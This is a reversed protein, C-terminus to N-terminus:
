RATPTQRGHDGPAYHTWTGGADARHWQTTTPHYGLAQAVVPAPAQLVLQRLAATRAAQNPIGLTRIHDLLSGPHMPQGARRGPFLWRSDPNTATNMNSRQAAAALLLAAFPEPVPVPPDGLRLLVQGDDTTIDDVTLRVIRSAPQAYLLMLCAAARTSSTGTESTLVAKVLDLRHRQTLPEARAIRLRPLDRHPLQGSSMAWTLFARLSRKAHDLHTAHWGDVDAQALTAPTRGREDLWTLFLRAQTFQEAATKRSHTTLPRAAARHRLRPLQSWTAFQRLLRAHPQGDLETLQRHLWTEHHLLQKDVTPLAGCAMLLDRLYAVTRWNPLPHLAEHTLEIRGAALDALLERVRANRLWALGSKPRPMARVADLLPMLPPSVNGTGDDLATTLQDTLTCRECLRGGLLLGEFGCRSCFFDRTIGACDRCLATGDGRRGPLLREAACGPCRGYTRAARDYCSRCIPGDSWNASLSARRACRACVRIHWREYQEATYRGTRATM